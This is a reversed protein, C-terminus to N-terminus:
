LAGKIADELAQARARLRDIEAVAGQFRTRLWPWLLVAAAFGAAFEAIALLADIMM